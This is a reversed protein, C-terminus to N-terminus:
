ECIRKGRTRWIWEGWYQWRRIRRGRKRWIWEEGINGGGYGGAGNGGYGNEGINDGGYGGDGINYGSGGLGGIETYVEDGFSGFGGSYDGVGGHNSSKGYSYGNIKKSKPLIVKKWWFKVIGKHHDHCEPGHCPPRYKSGIKAIISPPPFMKVGGNYGDAGGRFGGIYGHSSSESTMLDNKNSLQSPQSEFRRVLMSPLRRVSYRDRSGSPLVNNARSNMSLGYHYLRQNHPKNYRQLQNIGVEIPTSFSQNSEDVQKKEIYNKVSHYSRRNDSSHDHM